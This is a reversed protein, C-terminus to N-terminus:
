QEFRDRFLPANSAYCLMGTSARACVDDFGAGNYDLKLITTYYEPRDWQAADSWQPGPVSDGFGSGTSPYCAFGVSSRACLDDLGDGNFDLARITRYFKAQNWGGRRPVGVCDLM